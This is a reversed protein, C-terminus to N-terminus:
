ELDQMKLIALVVKDNKSNGDSRMMDSPDTKGHFRIWGPFSNTKQYIIYVQKVM